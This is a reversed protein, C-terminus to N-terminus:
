AGYHMYCITKTTEAGSGVRDGAVAHGLYQVLFAVLYSHRGIAVDANRVEGGKVGVREESSM